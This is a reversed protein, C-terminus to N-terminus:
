RMSFTLILALCLQQLKAMYFLREQQDSTETLLVSVATETKCASLYLRIAKIKKLLEM